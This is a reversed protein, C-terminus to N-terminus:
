FLKKSTGTLGPVSLFAAMKLGMLRLATVAITCEIEDINETM